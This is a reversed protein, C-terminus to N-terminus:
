SAKTEYRPFKSTDITVDKLPEPLAVPDGFKFIHVAQYKGERPDSYLVTKGTRPDVLLFIPIRWEAYMRVKVVTDVTANGRGTVELALDATDAPFLWEDEEGVSSPLVLLDPVAYDESGDDNEISTRQLCIRGEPLRPELQVMVRSVIGSHKILPPPSIVLSGELIEVRFGPYRRAIVDATARLPEKRQFGAPLPADFRSEADASAVSM